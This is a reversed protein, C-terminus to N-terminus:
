VSAGRILVLDRATILPAYEDAHLSLEINRGRQSLAFFKYGGCNFDDSGIVIIRFHWGLVSRVLKKHQRVFALLERTTAYVHRFFLLSRKATCLSVTDSVPMRFLQYLTQDSYGRGWTGLRSLSPLDALDICGADRILKVIDCIPPNSVAFVENFIKDRAELADEVHERIPWVSIENTSIM